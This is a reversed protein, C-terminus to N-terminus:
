VVNRKGFFYVQWTKWETSSDEAVVLGPKNDTTTFQTYHIYVHAGTGPHAYHKTWNQSDNQPIILLVTKGNAGYLVMTMKASSSQISLVNGSMSTGYYKVLIVTLVMIVMTHVMTYLLLLIFKSCQIIPCKRECMHSDWTFLSSWVQLILYCILGM